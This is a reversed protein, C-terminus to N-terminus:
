RVNLSLALQDFGAQFDDSSSDLNDFYKLDVVQQGANLYYDTIRADTDYPKDKVYETLSKIVKHGHVYVSVCTHKKVDQITQLQDCDTTVREDILLKVPSDPQNGCSPAAAEVPVIYVVDKQDTCTLERWRKPLSYSVLSKVHNSSDQALPELTQQGQMSHRGAFWGGAGALAAVVVILLIIRFFRM